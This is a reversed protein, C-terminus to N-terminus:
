VPNVVTLAPVRCSAPPLPSTSAPPEDSVRPLPASSKFPCDCLMLKNCIVPLAVTVSEAPPPTSVAVFVPVVKPTAVPPTKFKLLPNM